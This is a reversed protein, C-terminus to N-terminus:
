FIRSAGFKPGSATHTACVGFKPGPATHSPASKFLPENKSKPKPKAEAPAAAKPQVHVPVARAVPVDDGDPHLKRPTAFKINTSDDVMAISVDTGMLQGGADKLMMQIQFHGHRCADVLPSFGMRDTANVNANLMLLSEVVDVHGESAALHLATRSDYDGTNVDVGNRVLDEIQARWGQAAYTCMLVGTEYGSLGPAQPAPALATASPASGSAGGRPTYEGVQRELLRREAELLREEEAIEDLRSEYVDRLTAAEPPSEGAAWFVSHVTHAAQKEVRHKISTEGAPVLRSFTRKRTGDPGEYHAQVRVFCAGDAIASATDKPRVGDQEEILRGLEEQMFRLPDAPQHIMLMQTLTTFHQRINNEEFYQAAVLQNRMHGRSKGSLPRLRTSAPNVRQHPPPAAHLSPTM